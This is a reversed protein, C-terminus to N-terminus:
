VIVALLVYIISSQLYAHELHINVYNGYYFVAASSTIFSEFIKFTYVRPRHMEFVYRPRCNCASLHACIITSSPTLFCKQDNIKKKKVISKRIVNLNQYYM